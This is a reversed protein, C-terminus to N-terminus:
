NNAGEKQLVGGARAEGEKVLQGKNNGKLHMADTNLGQGLTSRTEEDFTFKASKRPSIHLLYLGDIEELTRGSSEVLFFFVVM